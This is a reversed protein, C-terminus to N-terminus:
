FTKEPQDPCSQERVTLIIGDKAIQVGDLVLPRDEKPTRLVVSVKMRGAMFTGAAFKAEAELVAERLEQIMGWAEKLSIMEDTAKM